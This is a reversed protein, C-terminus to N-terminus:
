ASWCCRPAAPAAQLWAPNNAPLLSHTLSYVACYVCRTSLLCVDLTHSVRETGWRCAWVGPLLPYETM